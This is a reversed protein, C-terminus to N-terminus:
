TSLTNMYKDYGDQWRQCIARPDQASDFHRESQLQHADNGRNGTPLLEGTDLSPGINGIILDLAQDDVKPAIVSDFLPQTCMWSLPVRM